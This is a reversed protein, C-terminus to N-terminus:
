VSPSNSVPALRYLPRADNRRRHLALSELRADQAIQGATAPCVKRGQHGDQDVVDEVEGVLLLGVVIRRGGGVRIDSM